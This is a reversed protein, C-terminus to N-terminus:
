ARTWTALHLVIEGVSHAGPLPRTAAADAPVADLITRLADGHWPDGDWARRLEDLIHDREAMAGAVADGAATGSM